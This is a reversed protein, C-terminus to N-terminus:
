SVKIGDPLIAEIGKRILQEKHEGDSLWHKDGILHRVRDSLALISREPASHFRILDQYKTPM